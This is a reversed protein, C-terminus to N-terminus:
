VLRQSGQQLLGVRVTDPTLLINFFGTAKGVDKANARTEQSVSCLHLLLTPQQLIAKAIKLLRSAPRHNTTTQNSAFLFSISLM